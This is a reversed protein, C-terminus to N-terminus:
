VNESAKGERMVAVLAEFKERDDGIKSAVQTFQQQLALRTKNVDEQRKKIIQEAEERTKEASVGAGLGVIVKNPDELRVRIYSSGGVPVLIESNQNEKGLGNLAITAYTLDTSVTNIMNIRSQLTDAAQELAQMELSLRRLENENSKSAM